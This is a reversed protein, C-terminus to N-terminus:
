REAQRALEAFEERSAKGEHFDVLNGRRDIVMTQPLVGLDKHLAPRLEQYGEESCLLVPFDIGLRAVAATLKPRANELTSNAVVLEMAVGVVHGGRSRFERTGAVLDPMEECCPECWTAWFNVLLPTGRKDALYKQIAPLDAVTVPPPSAAADREKCAGAICLM